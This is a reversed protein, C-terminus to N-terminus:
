IKKLFIKNKCNKLIFYKLILAYHELIVKKDIQSKLLIYIFFYKIIM